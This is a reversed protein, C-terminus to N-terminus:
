AGLRDGEGLRTQSLPRIKLLPDDGVRLDEAGVDPHDGELEVPPAIGAPLRFTVTEVHEAEIRIPMQHHRFELTIASGVRHLHVRDLVGRHSTTEGGVATSWRRSSTTATLVLTGQFVIDVVNVTTGAEMELVAM